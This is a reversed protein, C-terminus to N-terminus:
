ACASSPTWRQSEDLVGEAVMQKAGRMNSGNPEFDAPSEEAPQFIFKVTGPLQDKM